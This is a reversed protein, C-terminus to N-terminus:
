NTEVLWSRSRDDYRLTTDLRQSLLTRRSMPHRFDVTLAFIRQNGGAAEDASLSLFYVQNPDYTAPRGATYDAASGTPDHIAATNAPQFADLAQQASAYSGDVVIFSGRVGDSRVMATRLHEGLFRVNQNSLTSANRVPAFTLVVKTPEHAVTAPLSVALERAAADAFRRLAEATVQVQRPTNPFAPAAEPAPRSQPKPSTTECGGAALLAAPLCLTWLATRPAAPKM